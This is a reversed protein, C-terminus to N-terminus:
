AGRKGALFMQERLWASPLQEDALGLSHAYRAAEGAFYPWVAREFDPTQGGGTGIDWAMGAARYLADVAAQGAGLSPDRVAWALRAYADVAGAGHRGLTAALDTGVRYDFPGPGPGWAGPSPARGPAFIPAAQPADGQGQVGARIRGEVQGGLYNAPSSYGAAQAQAGLPIGGYQQAASMGQIVEPAARRVAGGGYQDELRSLSRSMDAFGPTNPSIGNADLTGQWGRHLSREQADSRAASLDAQREEDREGQEIGHARESAADGLGRAVGSLARAVPSRSFM